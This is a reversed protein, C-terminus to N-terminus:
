YRITLDSRNKFKNGVLGSGSLIQKQITATNMQWCLDRNNLQLVLELIKIDRYPDFVTRYGLIGHRPVHLFRDVLTQKLKSWSMPTSVVDVASYIDSTEIKECLDQMAWLGLEPCRALASDGYFGDIIPSDSDLMACTYTPWFWPRPAPRTLRFRRLKKDRPTWGQFTSSIALDLDPRLKHNCLTDLGQSWAVAECGYHEVLYNLNRELREAVLVMTSEITNITAARQFRYKQCRIEARDDFDVRTVLASLRHKILPWFNTLLIHGNHGWHYDASVSRTLIVQDRISIQWWNGSEPDSLRYGYININDQLPVTSDIVLDRCRRRHCFIPHECGQRSVAFIM